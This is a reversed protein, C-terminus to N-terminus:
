FCGGGTRDWRGWLRVTGENGGSAGGGWRGRGLSEYFSGLLKHRRERSHEKSGIHQDGGVGEVGFTVPVPSNSETMGGGRGERGGGKSALPQEVRAAWSGGGTGRNKATLTQLSAMYGTAAMMQSGGGRARALRLSLRAYSLMVATWLVLQASATLWRVREVAAATAAAAIINEALRANGRDGLLRHTFFAGFTSSYGHGALTNGLSNNKLAYTTFVPELLLAALSLVATSKVAVSPEGRIDRSLVVLLLCAPGVGRTLM